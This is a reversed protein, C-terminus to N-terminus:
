KDKSLANAVDSMNDKVGYYQSLETIISSKVRGLQWLAIISNVPQGKCLDMNNKAPQSLNVKEM